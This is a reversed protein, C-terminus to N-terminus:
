AIFRKSLAQKKGDLMKMMLQESELTTIIFSLNIDVLTTSENLISKPVIGLEIFEKVKSMNVQAYHKIWDSEFAELINRMNYVPKNMQYAITGYETKISDQVHPLIAAMINKYDTTMLDLQQKMFRYELLMEEISQGGFLFDKKAYFGKGVKNFAPRLFATQKQIFPQLGSLQDDRKLVSHDLSLVKALYTDSLYDELSDILLPQNIQYSPKPVFKIVMGIDHFVHRKESSHQYISLLFEKSQELFGETVKMDNYRGSILFDIFKAEVTLGSM